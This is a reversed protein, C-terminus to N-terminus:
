AEFVFDLVKKGVKQNTVELSNAEERAFKVATQLKVLREQWKAVQTAPVAGSLRTNTWTGEPTEEEYVEVQAPHKDTAPAKEHNKRVRKMRFSAVPDAHYLGDADDKTWRFESSLTPVKSLLVGVVKLRSELFLLYEVPVDKLLVKGDVVIDAKAQTNGWNRTATIDFVEASNDIFRRVEDLVTTQVKQNESPHVIGGDEIPAYTRTQGLFVAPHELTHYAQTIKDEAHSAVDKTAAIVQNLKPM